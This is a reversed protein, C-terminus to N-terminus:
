MRVCYHICSHYYLVSSNEKMMRSKLMVSVIKIFSRIYIMASKGMEVAYNM